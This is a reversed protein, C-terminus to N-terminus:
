HIISLLAILKPSTRTMIAADEIASARNASYKHLM